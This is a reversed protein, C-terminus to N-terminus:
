FKVKVAQREAEETVEFYKAAEFKFLKAVINGPFMEVKVNFKMATDNYFQRNFMIKDETDKLQAMMEKFNENAKLEPYAESVVMLRSLAGVLGKEAEAAKAVDGTQPPSSTSAAPKASSSGSTRKM